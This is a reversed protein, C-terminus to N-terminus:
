PAEPAPDTGTFLVTTKRWMTKDLFFFFGNDLELWGRTRADFEDIPDLADPFATGMKTRIKGGALLNVRKEVEPLHDKRCLVYVVKDTIPPHKPQKKAVAGKATRTPRKREWNPEISAVPVVISTAVLNASDEVITKLVNPVTGFEYEAAGMYDFSFVDRLLQFGEPSMAIKSAGGFAHEIKDHMNTKTPADLRQVLYTNNM